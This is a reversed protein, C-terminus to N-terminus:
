KPRRAIPRIIKKPYLSHTRNLEVDENMHHAYTALIVEARQQSPTGRDVRGERIPYFSTEGIRKLGEQGFPTVTREIFNNMIEPQIEKGIRENVFPTIKNSGLRSFYRKMSGLWEM